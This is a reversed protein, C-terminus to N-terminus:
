RPPLYRRVLAALEVAQYPKALHANMGVDLCRQRDAPLANATVAVIPIPALGHQAEHARWQRTAEYGDLNPMQCDMLVLDWAAAHLQALAEVGDRALGAEIGLDRLMTQAVLLNIPNDEVLLVRHSAAATRSSM